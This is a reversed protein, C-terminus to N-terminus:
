LSGTNGKRLSRDKLIIWSFSGFSFLRAAINKEPLVLVSKGASLLSRDIRHFDEFLTQEKGPEHSVRYKGDEAGIIFESKLLAKKVRSTKMQLILTGPLTDGGEVKQSFVTYEGKFGDIESADSIWVKDRVTFGKKIPSSDPLSLIDAGFLSDSNKTYVVTGKENIIICEDYLEETVAKIMSSINERELPYFKKGGRDMNQLHTLNRIIDEKLIIDSARKLDGRCHRFFELVPDKSTVEEPAQSVAESATSKQISSTQAQIYRIGTGTFLCFLIFSLLFILGRM